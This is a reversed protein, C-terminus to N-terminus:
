PKGRYLQKSDKKLPPNIFTLGDNCTYGIMLIILVLNRTSVTELLESDELPGPGYATRVVSSQM